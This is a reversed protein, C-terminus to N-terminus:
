HAQLDIQLDWIFMEAKVAIDSAIVASEPPTMNMIESKCIFPLGGASETWAEPIHGSGARGNCTCLLRRALLQKGTCNKIHEVHDNAM